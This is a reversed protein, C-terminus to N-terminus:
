FYLSYIFIFYFLLHVVHWADEGSPVKKKGVDDLVGGGDSSHGMIIVDM